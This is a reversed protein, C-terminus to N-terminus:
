DWRPLRQRCFRAPITAPKAAGSVRVGGSRQASNCCCGRSGSNVNGTARVFGVSQEVEFPLSKKLRFRVVADADQQKEPFSEFDLLMVRTTADPIVLCIDRARGAVAALADRLTPVPNPATPSTPRSCGPRSLGEPLAAAAAAELTTAGRAPVCRSLATPASRAPSAPAHSTAEDDHHKNRITQYEASLLQCKTFSHNLM